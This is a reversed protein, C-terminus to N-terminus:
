SPEKFPRHGNIIEVDFIFKNDIKNNENWSDDGIKSAALITHSIVEAVDPSFQMAVNRVGESEILSIDLDLWVGARTKKVGIYGVRGIASHTTTGDSLTFGAHRDSEEAFLRGKPDPM